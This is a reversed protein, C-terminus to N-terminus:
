KLVMVPQDKWRSETEVMKFEEKLSDNFFAKRVKNFGCELLEKEISQFDWMWLHKSNGFNNILMEKLSRNRNLTGLGTAKLFEISTIENKSYKISYIKMDPLVARFIGEKKLLKYINRLSKRFEILALHDLVHSCYIGEVSNEELPLGKVIDGYMVNLPFFEKNRKYLRGILPIREFILTPSSDFNLFEKPAPGSYSGGFHVFLKKNKIM